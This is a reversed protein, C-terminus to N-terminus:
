YLSTVFKFLHFLVLDKNHIYKFIVWLCVHSNVVFTVFIRNFFLFYLNICLSFISISSLTLFVDILLIVSLSDTKM